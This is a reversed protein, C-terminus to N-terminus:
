KATPIPRSATAPRGCTAACRRTTRSSAMICSPSVQWVIPLAGRGEPRGSSSWRANAIGAHGPFELDILKNSLTTSPGAVKRVAFGPGAVAFGASDYGREDLRTLARVLDRAVAHGNVLGVLGSM